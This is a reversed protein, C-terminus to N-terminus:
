QGLLLRVLLFRTLCVVLIFSVFTVHFKRSKVLLGLVGLVVFHIVLPLCILPNFLQHRQTPIVIDMLNSAIFLRLLWSRNKEFIEGYRQGQIRNSPFLIDTKLYFIVAWVIFLLFYEFTWDTCNRNVLFLWWNLVLVVFVAFSCLFHIKDVKFKNWLLGNSLITKLHSVLTWHWEM